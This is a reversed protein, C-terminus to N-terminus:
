LVLVFKQFHINEEVGCFKSNLFITKALDTVMILWMILIQVRSM